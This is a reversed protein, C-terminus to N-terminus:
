VNESQKKIEKILDDAGIEFIEGCGRKKVSLVEAEREKEGAVVVYPIKEDAAFKVRAKLPKDCFYGKARVGASLLRTFVEEAYGKDGVNLVAVQVPALSVPMDGGNQELLLAIIREFGVAANIRVSCVFKKEGNKAVYKLGYKKPTVYDLTVASVAFSKKFADEVAIELKPAYYEAGGVIEEYALGKEDLVTKIVKQANEWERKATVFKNKTLPDFKAFKFILNKFGISNLIKVCLDVASSFEKEAAEPACFVACDSVTFENLNKLGNTKGGVRKYAATTECYKVPLDKYSKLKSAYLAFKAPFTAPSLIKLPAKKDGIAFLNKKYREFFGSKYAEAGIVSPTKVPLFGNLIEEKEFVAILARLTAAGKETLIVEGRGVPASRTFYNLKAGIFRHDRKKLEEKSKLYEDIQSKKEFAVGSIRTLMENNADGLFYAGTLATLQFAKIKGTSIVHAEGCVDTFAGQKYFSIPVGDAIREVTQLKYKEGFKKLLKIADKKDLTFREVPLDSKIISKMEREIKSLDEKKIPTKFGVDCYFGSDTAREAAINCTPYVNKVAQALIHAAAIRYVKLGREDKVTLIKVEDNENLPTSLDRTIGNVEAAIASRVSAEGLSVALDFATAGDSLNVSSGDSLNVLM